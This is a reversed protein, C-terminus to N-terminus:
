LEFAYGVAAGMYFLIRSPERTSPQNACTTARGSGTGTTTCTYDAALPKGAGPNLLAGTGMYPRVSFGKRTRIEFFGETNAWYAIDWHLVDSEDFRLFNDSYPGGSVGAGFGAAVTDFPVRVRAMAGLQLGSSGLGGGGAVALYRSLSYDVAFGVWGVPGAFSLHGEVVLPRKVYPDITPGSAAAYAPAARV